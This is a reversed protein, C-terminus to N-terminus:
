AQQQSRKELEHGAYAGGAVGLVTAATQGSGKGIQSGVVGGVVAGAVTGLGIGTSDQRVLEISQVVGYGSRIGGSSTSQPYATGYGSTNAPPNMTGCAGLTLVAALGLISGSKNMTIM